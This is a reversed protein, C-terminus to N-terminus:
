NEVHQWLLSLDVDHDERGDLRDIASLESSMLLMVSSKVETNDNRTLMLSVAFDTTDDNNWDGICSIEMRNIEADGVPPRVIWVNVGDGFRLDWSSVRNETGGNNSVVKALDKMQFVYFFRNDFRSQKGVVYTDDDVEGDDCLELQGFGDIQWSNSDIVNIANIIGDADGDEVDHVALDSLNVLYWTNYDIISSVPLYYQQHRTTKRSLETSRSHNPSTTFYNFLYSEDRERIEQISVKRDATDVSNAVHALDSSALLYVLNGSFNVALDEVGDEDFDGVQFVETYYPLFDVDTFESYIQLSKDRRSVDALRLKGSDFDEMADQLATASFLYMLPAGTLAETWGSAFSNTTIVASENADFLKNLSTTSFGFGYNNEGSIAFCHKPEACQTHNIKSDIIGDYSDASRLRIGRLIYVAGRGLNEVWSDVILDAVDDDDIFAITGRNTYSTGPSATPRRLEWSHSGFSIDSTQILHNTKDDISDLYRLAQNSVILDPKRHDAINGDNIMIKNGGTRDYNYLPHSLLEPSEFLPAETWSSDIRYSQVVASGFNDGFGDNDGDEWEFPNHAFEDANDGYGDGDSDAWENPDTSFEDETDLYGDNDDDTDANDGIGDMDSDVWETADNVFMDIGDAYGDGDSDLQENEDLPFDDDIDNVGDNDDDADVFNNLGDNDTDFPYDDIFNEIGDGDIDLDSNDGIGDRDLDHDENPDNPFMDIVNATGDRDSDYKAVAHLPFRDYVDLAGDNDDDLDIMNIVGDGDTDDFNNHLALELNVEGDARDMQSFSSSYVVHITGTRNGNPHGSLVAFLFDIKGDSDIDNIPLFGGVTEEFRLGPPVELVTLGENGLRRFTEIVSNRNEEIPDDLIELQSFDILLLATHFQVIASDHSSIESRLIAQSRHNNTEFGEFSWSESTFSPDTQYSLDVYGDESQDAGDLNRLDSVSLVYHEDWTTWLMLESHGDSNLDSVHSVGNVFAGSYSGRASALGGDNISFSDSEASIFTDISIERDETGDMKDLDDIEDINLVYVSGSDGFFSSSTRVHVGLEVSDGGSFDGLNTTRILISGFNSFHQQYTRYCNEHSTVIDSFANGGDMSSSAYSKLAKATLLYIEVTDSSLSNGAVVLDETGDTDWDFLTTLSQLQFDTNEGLYWCHNSSDCHSLSLEGDTAGDLEDMSNLDSERLSVAYLSNEYTLILTPAEDNTGRLVTTQEGLPNTSAVDPAIIKWSTDLEVLQQMSKSSQIRGSKEDPTIFDSFPFIYVAGVENGSATKYSPASVVLDDHGDQDLDNIRIIQNGLRDNPSEGVVSVLVNSSNQSDFPDSDVINLVGDNDIDPDTNDGIGDGDTDAWETPDDPFLDQNDGYGDGDSDFWEDSNLPFADINAAFGDGDIDLNDPPHAFNAAQFKTINLSLVSNASMENNPLEHSIGCPDGNCDANPDSFRNIEIGNYDIGAYSMVTGFKNHQGHGRSWYYSGIAGQVFSHGLGLLHGIEHATVATPCSLPNLWVHTLIAQNLPHIFGRGRWGGIDEAVGCIRGQTEPLFLVILDAGYKDQIDQKLDSPLFDTLYPIEPIDTEDLTGVIRFQIPVDSNRFISTTVNMIHTIEQLPARSSHSRINSDYVAVVDLTPSEPFDAADNPDTNWSRENIDDVGDHDSDILYNMDKKDLTVFPIESEGDFWIFDLVSDDAFSSGEHLILEFYVKGQPLQGLEIDYSGTAKMEFEDLYFNLPATGLLLLTRNQYQENEFYGTVGLTVYLNDTTLAEHNALGFSVTATEGDQSVLTCPCELSVTAWELQASGNWSLGCTILIISFFRIYKM